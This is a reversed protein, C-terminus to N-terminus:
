TPNTLYTIAKEFVEPLADGAGALFAAQGLDLECLPEADGLLGEGMVLDAARADRGVQKGPEGPQEVQREVLQQDTLGGDTRWALAAGCRAELLLKVREGPEWPGLLAGDRGHEVGHQRLM